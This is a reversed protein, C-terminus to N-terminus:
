ILRLWNQSGTKQGSQMTLLTDRLRKTHEGVKTNGVPYIQGEHVLEGVGTLVAATGSLACEANPAAALLETVTFDREEVNYGLERGLILLSDRTIGPLISGDLPKTILNNDKILFFNAAGTEQVNGDPCFLVQDCDYEARAQAIFRVAAAYNGGTKVEGFTPTTRMNKDDVMLRLAKDGGGFYDGVPSALIFLIADDSGKGASGIKEDIGILTPRLYLSGPFEPILDQQEKIVSVILTELLAADPIPLHLLRASNQMRKIHMDLRFIHVEGNNQRYAKLGEFCSSSYHLVHNAPHLSLSDSPKLEIASWQGDTYHSISLLPAFETGFPATGFPATM